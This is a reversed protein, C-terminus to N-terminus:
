ADAGSATVARAANLFERWDTAHSALRRALRELDSWGSEMEWGWHLTIPVWLPQGVGLIRPLAESIQAARGYLPPYSPLFVCGGLVSPTRRFGLLSVTEPGACVVTFRDSLQRLQGPDFRNFPPVFVETEINLGETAVQARELLRRLRIEGLGALESRDRAGVRRTRHSWGHLGFVIGDRKLEEIMALESGDLEREDTEIPDLPRRAVRPMVAVLYPIGAGLMIEHFRRFGDTGFREPDDWARYHPFEDVRVLVRPEGGSDSGLVSKRANAHSRLSSREYGILGTKMAVREILRARPSLRASASVAEEVAASELDAVAVLGQRLEDWFLLRASAREDNTM